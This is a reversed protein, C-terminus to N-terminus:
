EKLGLFKITPIVSVIGSHLDSIATSTASIIIREPYRGMSHIHQIFVWSHTPDNVIALHTTRDLLNQLASYTGEPADQEARNM